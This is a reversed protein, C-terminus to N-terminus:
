TRGVHDCAAVLTNSYERVTVRFDGPLERKLLLDSKDVRVWIAFIPGFRGDDDDDEDDDDEDFCTTSINSSSTIWTFVFLLAEFCLLPFPLSTDETNPSLILVTLSEIPFTSLFSDVDVSINSRVSSSQCSM